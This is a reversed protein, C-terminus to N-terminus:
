SANGQTLLYPVVAQRQEGLGGIGLTMVEGAQLFRPPVMGMGVGPPTGTAIVDGPMLTMCESLYSVIRACDFIMTRTNGAQMRQGNVELWLDLAQPDGIEDRTVLYPGVPGFTDFSKGKDWQGGRELQYNRESVDNIVCYGAVHDLADEVSVYQAKTGIVLGLEVEWDMKTSHKPRVVDDHPGCLCSTAKMFVVPETPIPLKAEIAHDRYNTGIAIFKPVAAVPVGIRPEGRVIPLTAIDVSALRALGAQSLAEGDIDPIVSSIDRMAGDLDLLGPREQGPPGYRLLKM